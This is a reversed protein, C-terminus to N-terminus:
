ISPLSPILASFAENKTRRVTITTKKSNPFLDSESSISYLIFTQKLLLFMFMQQYSYFFWEVSVHGLIWSLCRYSYWFSNTIIRFSFKSSSHFKNSEMIPRKGIPTSSSLLLPKYTIEGIIPCLRNISLFFFLIHIMTIWECQFISPFLKFLLRQFILDSRFNIISCM